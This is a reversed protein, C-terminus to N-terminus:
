ILFDRLNYLRTPELVPECKVDDLMKNLEFEVDLDYLVSIRLYTCGTPPTLTEGSGWQEFTSKVVSRSNDLRIENNQKDRMIIQNPQTSRRYTYDSAQFYYDLMKQSNGTNFAVSQQVTPVPRNSAFSIFFIMASLITLGMAIYLRM